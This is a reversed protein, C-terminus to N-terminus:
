AVAAADADSASVASFKMTNATTVTTQSHTICTNRRLEFEQEKEDEEKQEYRRM